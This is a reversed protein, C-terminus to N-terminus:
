SSYLYNFKLWQPTLIPLIRAELKGLLFYSTSNVHWYSSHSFHLRFYHPNVTLYRSIISLVFFLADTLRQTISERQRTMTWHTVRLVQFNSTAPEPSWLATAREARLRFDFTVFNRTNSFSRDDDLPPRYGRRENSKHLLVYFWAHFPRANVRFNFCAQELAGHASGRLFTFAVTSNLQVTFRSLTVRVSVCATRRKSSANKWWQNLWELERLRGNWNM